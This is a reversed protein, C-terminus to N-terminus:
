GKKLRQGNSDPRVPGLMMRSRLVQAHVPPGSHIECSCGEGRNCDKKGGCDNRGHPLLM